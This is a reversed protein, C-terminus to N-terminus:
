CFKGDGYGGRDDFREPVGLRDTINPRDRGFEDM